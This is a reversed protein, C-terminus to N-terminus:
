YLRCYNSEQSCGWWWDKYLQSVGLLRALKCVTRETALVLQM